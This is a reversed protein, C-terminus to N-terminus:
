VQGLPNLYIYTSVQLFYGSKEGDITLAKYRGQFLHGRLKDRWNFRQTYVGQLWKMGVVLNAEPTGLLLHYRNSM